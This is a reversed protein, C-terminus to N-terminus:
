ILGKAKAIWETMGVRLTVGKRLREEEDFFDTFDHIQSFPLWVEEGDIEILLAKETNNLLKAEEYHIIEPKPM